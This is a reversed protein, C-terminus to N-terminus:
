FKTKRRLLMKRRFKRRFMIGVIPYDSFGGQSEDSIIAKFEDFLYKEDCFFYASEKTFYNAVFINRRLIHLSILLLFIEKCSTNRM